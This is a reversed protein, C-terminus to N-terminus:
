WWNQRNRCTHTKEGARMIWSCLAAARAWLRASRLCASPRPSPTRTRASPATAAWRTRPSSAPAKMARKWSSSTRYLRSKMRRKRLPPRRALTAGTPEADPTAVSPHAKPRSTVSRRRTRGSSALTPCGPSSSPPASPRTKRWTCVCTVQFLVRDSSSFFLEWDPLGSSSRSVEHLKDSWPTSPNNSADSRQFLKIQPMNVLCGCASCCQM